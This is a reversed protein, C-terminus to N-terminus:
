SSAAGTLMVAVSSPQVALAATTRLDTVIEDGGVQRRSREAFGAILVEADYHSRDFRRDVSRRVRGHLPRAVAAALLTSGAVALDSGGAVPASVARLVVVAAAYVLGLTSVVLTYAVTRSLIRDIDYLRHRTIAIGIALPVAALGALGAVDSVLQHGIGYRDLLSAGVLAVALLAVALLLWKLQLRTTRDGRRARAFLSSVATLWSLLLLPLAVQAVAAARGPFADGLEVLELHRYPWLTSGLVLGALLAGIVVVLAARWRRSPLRGDPFLLITLALAVIAPLWMWAGAWEAVDGLPARPLRRSVVDGTGVVGFLAASLSLLWGVPHRPLRHLLLGGVVAFSAIPLWAIRDSWTLSPDDVTVTLAGTVGLVLAALSALALGALRMRRTATEESRVM